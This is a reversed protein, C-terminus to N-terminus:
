QDIAADEDAFAACSGNSNIGGEEVFVHELQKSGFELKFGFNSGAM